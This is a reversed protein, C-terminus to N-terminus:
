KVIVTGRMVNYGLHRDFYNYTGPETFTYSFSDGFYLYSSDFLGTTSTVSHWWWSEDEQRDRHIWTVTTGVPVTITAPIYTSSIIEVVVSTSYTQTSDPTTTTTPSSSVATPSLITAPVASCAVLMLMMILLMTVLLWLMYKHEM